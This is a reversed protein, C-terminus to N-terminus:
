EKLKNIMAVLYLATLYLILEGTLEYWFMSFALIAGSAMVSM